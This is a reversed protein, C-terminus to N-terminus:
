TTDFVLFGAGADVVVDHTFEDQVIVERLEWPPQQAFGVRLLDELTALRTAIALRAAAAGAAGAGWAGVIRLARPVPTVAPVTM